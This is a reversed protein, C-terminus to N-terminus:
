RVEIKGECRYRCDDIMLDGLLVGDTLIHTASEPSDVHEASGGLSLSYTAGNETSHRYLTAVVADEDLFEYCDRIVHRGLLHQPITPFEFEIHFDTSKYSTM